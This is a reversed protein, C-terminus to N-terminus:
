LTQIPYSDYVAQHIPTQSCTHYSQLNGFIRLHICQPQIWPPIHQEYKLVYSPSLYLIISIISSSTCLSFNNLVISAIQVLSVNYLNATAPSPLILITFKDVHCSILCSYISRGFLTPLTVLNDHLLLPYVNITAVSFPISSPNRVETGVSVAMDPDSMAMWYDNVSIAMKSDELYCSM